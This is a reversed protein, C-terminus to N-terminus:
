KGISKLKEINISGGMCDMFYQKYAALIQELHKADFDKHEPNFLHEMATFHEPYDSLLDDSDTQEGNDDIVVLDETRLSLYDSSLNIKLESDSIAGDIFIDSFLEGGNEHKAVLYGHCWFNLNGSGDFDDDSIGDVSLLPHFTASSFYSVVESLTLKNM